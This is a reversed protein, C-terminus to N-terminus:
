LLENHGVGHCLNDGCERVTIVYQRLDAKDKQIYSCLGTGPVAGRVTGAHGPLSGQTCAGRRLSISKIFGLLQGESCPGLDGSKHM